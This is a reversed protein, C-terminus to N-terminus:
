LTISYTFGLRVNGSISLVQLMSPAERVEGLAAACAM